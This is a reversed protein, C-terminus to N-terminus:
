LENKSEKLLHQLEINLLEQGVEELSIEDLPTPIKFYNNQLIKISLDIFDNSISSDPCDQIVTKRRCEALKIKLSQPLYSIIKTNTKQAFFDIQKLSEENNYHNHIIGGLLPHETDSYRKISKMINNAAYISMFDSSSVIYVSDVFHKRMPLSFGGCVVDGLVDYIIIDWDMEYIGLRELEDVMASIGIGACGIGAEPGGAEMCFVGNFGEFLIDEKQLDDGKLQIQQLITPLKFTTLNRTSDSKPDCGIHLVKKKQMSLAVSINSAVTSKGIGGKGYFAIKKCNQNM